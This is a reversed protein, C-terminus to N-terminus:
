RFAEGLQIVGKDILDAVVGVMLLKNQEPVEEWPVASEERTKYGYQPALREYTEHFAKAVKHGIALEVPNMTETEKRHTCYIWLTSLRAAGTGM